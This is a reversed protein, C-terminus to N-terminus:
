GLANQSFKLRIQKVLLVFIFATKGTLNDDCPSAATLHTHDAALYAHTHSFPLLTRHHVLSLHLKVLSLRGQREKLLDRLTEDVKDYRSQTHVYM